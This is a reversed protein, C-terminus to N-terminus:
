SNSSVPVRWELRTGGSPPSVIDFTGGLMSARAELNALGSSRARDGIGVGDDAVSVLLVDGDVRVVVDLSSAQAHRTANSLAERVIALVHAAVRAPVDGDVPGEFVVSPAFGLADSARRCLELVQVRLEGGGANPNNLAFITNRIERITEDLQDIADNVRGVTVQEQIKPLASQLSIGAGFLRQIVLDHLDRAIRERDDILMMRERDGRAREFEFAIAVQEALTVAFMRDSNSYSEAGMARVLMLAGVAQANVVIPVGLTPGDPLSAPVVMRSADSRRAVELTTNEDVVRGAFSDTLELTEGIMSEGPGGGAVVRVLDEHRRCIVAAAVDVLELARECVMQLIADLAVDSLIRLRIESTAEHQRVFLEEEALLRHMEAENRKRDTVDRVIFSFGTLAESQFRLPSISVAVDIEQGERTRWRTDRATLRAGQFATGLLEELVPMQADPVLASVHRGVIEDTNFHFLEEAAPNWSAVHGEVSTSIIADSSSRVLTALEIQASYAGFQETLDRVAAIVFTSGAVDIPALSVDVPFEHGDARRGTLSFNAGMTRKAPLDSFNRRHVRHRTRLREPVLVEIAVANLAGAGYGFLAEAQENASTIMGDANVVVAADPMLALFADLIGSSGALPDLPVEVGSREARAPPETREM